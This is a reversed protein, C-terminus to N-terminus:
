DTWEYPQIGDLWTYYVAGGPVDTWFYPSDLPPEAPRTWPPTVKEPRARVFDQPHRTEWDKECVM